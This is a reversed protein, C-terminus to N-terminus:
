NNSAQMDWRVVLDAAMEDLHLATSAGAFVRWDDQWKLFCAAKGPQNYARMDNVEGAFSWDQDLVNVLGADVLATDGYPMAGGFAAQWHLMVSLFISCHKHAEHWVIAAGNAAQSAPPDTNRSNAITGWFVVRQNEEMFVLHGADAFSAHPPLLREFVCNFDEARGAVLYYDRLAQPATLGLRKEAAEIDEHTVGDQPMLPRGLTTFVRRYHEQFDVM